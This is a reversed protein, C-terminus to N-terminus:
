IEATIKIVSHTKQTIAFRADPRHGVLWVIQGDADCLLWQRQKEILSLKLDSFYDSLLRSGQMGFPHFHDGDRWHRLTLPQHLRDADCLITDPPPKLTTLEHRPFPDSIALRPQNDPLDLPAIQLTDRNTVLRHTTSLFQRGSEAHLTSLIDASVDASFGYPRLLEFLLTAQPSLADIAAVPISDIGDPRHTVTELRLTDIAAQFVHNADSINRLNQSMTADFAPSLDRLLPLLQHRIRNRLYLDTANTRDDVYELGNEAVFRDIDDRSVDLLPRVLHGSLAKMGCLGAIGTGRLLNIFFTEIADDRHHAVAILDLGQQRRLQEFWSYRQERAAMEVSIKKQAAYATTDFHAVHCPVGYRQALRRM